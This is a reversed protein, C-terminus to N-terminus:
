APVLLGTLYMVAVGGGLGAVVAPELLRGDRGRLPRSIQIIVQVIAGVGVGLLVASLAANDIVVGVVAGPIM